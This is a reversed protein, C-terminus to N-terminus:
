RTLIDLREYERDMFWMGLYWPKMHTVNDMSWDRAAM